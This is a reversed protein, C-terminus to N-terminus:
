PLLSRKCAYVRRQKGYKNEYTKQPQHKVLQAGSEPHQGESLRAFDEGVGNATWRLHKRCDCRKSFEDGAYKCPKGDITSHRVFITILPTSM